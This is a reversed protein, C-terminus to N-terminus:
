GPARGGTTVMGIETNSSLSSHGAADSLMIAVAFGVLLTTCSSPCCLVWVLQRMGRGGHIAGMEELM